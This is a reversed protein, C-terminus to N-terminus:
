LILQLGGSLSSGIKVPNTSNDFYGRFNCIFQTKYIGVVRLFLIRSCEALPTKSQKKSM